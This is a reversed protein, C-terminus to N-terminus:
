HTTEHHDLPVINGDKDFKALGKKVLVNEYDWCKMLQTSLEHMQAHAQREIVTMALLSTAALLISLAALINTVM